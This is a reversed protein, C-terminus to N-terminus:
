RSVAVSPVGRMVEVSGPADAEPWHNKCPVVLVLKLQITLRKEPVARRAGTPVPVIVADSGSAVSVRWAKRRSVLPPDSRKRSAPPELARVPTALPAVGMRVFRSTAAEEWSQIVEGTTLPM